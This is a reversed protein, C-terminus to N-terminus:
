LRYVPLVSAATPAPSSSQTAPLTWASPAPPCMWRGEEAPRGVMIPALPTMIAPNESANHERQGSVRFFTNNVRTFEYEMLPGTQEVPHSAVWPVPNARRCEFCTFAVATEIRPVYQERGCSACSAVLMAGDSTGATPAAEQRGARGMRLVAYICGASLIVAVGMIIVSAGTVEAYRTESPDGSPLLTPSSTSNAITSTSERIRSLFLLASKERAEIDEVWVEITM